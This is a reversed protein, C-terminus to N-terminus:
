NSPRSTQKIAGFTWDQNPMKGVIMGIPYVSIGTDGVLSDDLFKYHMMGEWNKGKWELKASGVWGDSPDRLSIGFEQNQSTVEITGRPTESKDWFEFVVYTGVLDVEPAAPTPTATPSPKPTPSPSPTPSPTATATPTLTATPQTLKAANLEHRDRVAAALVFAGVIAVFAVGSWIALPWLRRPEDSPDYEVPRPVWAAITPQPSAVTEAPEVKNVRPLVTTLDDDELVSLLTGDELCFNYRDEYDRGCKPCTKM